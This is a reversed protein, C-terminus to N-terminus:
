GFPPKSCTPNTCYSSVPGQMVEQAILNYQHMPMTDDQLLISSQPRKAIKMQYPCWWHDYQAHMHEGRFFSGTAYKATALLDACIPVSITAAVMAGSIFALCSLWLRRFYLLM